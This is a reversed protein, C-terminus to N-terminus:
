KKTFLVQMKAGKKTIRSLFKFLSVDLKHIPNIEIFRLIKELIFKTLKSRKPPFIYTFSPVLYYHIIRSLSLDSYDFYVKQPTLGALSGALSLTKPSWHVPHEFAFIVTHYQRTARNILSDINHTDIFLIGGPKLVQKVKELFPSIDPIHEMVDRFYIVDFYDTPLDLDLIDKVYINDTTKKLREILLSNLEVAHVDFGDSAAKALFTGKGPGIELLKKDKLDKIHKKLLEYNKLNEKDDETSHEISHFKIENYIENVESNYFAVTAAQNLRPNLYVFGCNKCQKHVFMDKVCYLKNADSQCVPCFKLHEILTEKFNGNSEFVKSHEFRLAKKLRIDYTETEM